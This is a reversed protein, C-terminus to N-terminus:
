EAEQTEGPIPKPLAVFVFALFMVLGAPYVLIEPLWGSLDDGEHVFLSSVFSGLEFIAAISLITTIFIIIKEFRLSIRCGNMGRRYILHSLFLFTLAAIYIM